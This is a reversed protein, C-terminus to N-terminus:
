NNASSVLEQNRGLYKPLDLPDHGQIQCYQKWLVLFKQWQLVTFSIEYLGRECRSVTMPDVGIAVAFELQSMGLADRMKKLEVADEPTPQKKRRKIM